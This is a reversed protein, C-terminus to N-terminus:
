GKQVPTKVRTTKKFRVGKMPDQGPAITTHPIAEVGPPVKGTVIEPMPEISVRPNERLAVLNPRQRRPAGMEALLAKAREVYATLQAHPVDGIAEKLLDATIKIKQASAQAFGGGVSCTHEGNLMTELWWIHDDVDKLHVQMKRFIQPITIQRVADLDSRTGTFVNTEKESM